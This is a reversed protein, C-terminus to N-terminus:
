DRCDMPKTVVQQRTAGAGDEGKRRRWLGLNHISASQPSPGSLAFDLLYLGERVERRFQQRFLVEVDPEDDLLLGRVTM